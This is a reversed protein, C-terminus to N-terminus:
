KDQVGMLKNYEYGSACTQENSDHHTKGCVESIEGKEDYSIFWKTRSEGSENIYFYSKYARNSKGEIEWPGVRLGNANLQNMAKFNAIEEPTPFIFPHKYNRIKRIETWEIFGDEKTFDAAEFVHYLTFNTDPIGTLQINMEFCCECAAYLESSNQIDLILSDSTYKVNIEPFFECNRVIGIQLNLTDNMIEKSILRNQHMFFPDSRHDCSSMNIGVIQQTFASISFILFFSIFLHKM